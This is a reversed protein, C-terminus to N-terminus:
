NSLNEVSQCIQVNIFNALSVYEVFKKTLQQYQAPAVANDQDTKLQTRCELKRKLYANKNCM